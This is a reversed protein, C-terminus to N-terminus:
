RRCRWGQWRGRQVTVRRMGHRACVDRHLAVRRVIRPSRVRAATITAGGPHREEDVVTDNRMLVTAPPLEHVVRWRARFTSGEDLRRATVGETPVSRVAIPAPRPWSILFVAVPLLGLAAAYKV